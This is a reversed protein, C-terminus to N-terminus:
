LSYFMKREKVLFMMICANHFNQSSKASHSTVLDMQFARYVACTFLVIWAKNGKRLSLHETLDEGTIQFTAVQHVRDPTLPSPYPHVNKSTLKKCQVYRRLHARVFEQIKPIWFRERLQTTLM